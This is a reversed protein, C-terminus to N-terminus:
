LIQAELEILLTVLTVMTPLPGPQGYPRLGGPHDLVIAKFLSKRQREFDEYAYCMHFHM